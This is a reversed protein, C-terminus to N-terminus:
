SFSWPSSPTSQIISCQALLTVCLCLAEPLWALPRITLCFTAGYSRIVGEPGCRSLSSMSAPSLNLHNDVSSQWLLVPRRACSAKLASSNNFKLSLLAHQLLNNRKISWAAKIYVTTVHIHAELIDILLRKNNCHFLVRSKHMGLTSVESHGRPALIASQFHLPLKIKLFIQTLVAPSCTINYEPPIKARWPCHCRSRLSKGCDDALM